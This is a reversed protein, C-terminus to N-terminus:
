PESTVSLRAPSDLSPFGFHALSGFDTYDTPPPLSRLHFIYPAPHLPSSFGCLHTGHRSSICDTIQDARFLAPREFGSRKGRKREKKKTSSTRQFTKFFLSVSVFPKGCLGTHSTPKFHM